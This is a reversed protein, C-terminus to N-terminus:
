HQPDLGPFCTSSPTVSPIVFWALTEFSEGLTQEETVVVVPWMDDNDHLYTDIRV